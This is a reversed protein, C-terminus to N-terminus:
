NEKTTARATDIVASGNGAALARRRLWSATRAARDLARDPEREMSADVRRILDRRESETLQETEWGSV